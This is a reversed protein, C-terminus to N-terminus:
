WRTDGGADGYIDEGNGGIFEEQKRMGASASMRGVM